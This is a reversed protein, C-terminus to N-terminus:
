NWQPRLPSVAYNIIRGCKNLYTKLRATPRYQHINWAFKLFIYTHIFSYPLRVIDLIISPGTLNLYTKIDAEQIYKQYLQLRWRYYHIGRNRRTTRDSKRWINQHEGKNLAYVNVTTRAEQFIQWKIIIYPREKDRIIKRARIDVGDSILITIYVKKKNTNAQKIKRWGNIKLWKSKIKKQKKAM